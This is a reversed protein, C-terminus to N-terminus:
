SFSGSKLRPFFLGLEFGVQRPTAEPSAPDFGICLWNFGIFHWFLGLVLGVQRPTAEPSAPDFGIEFGAGRQAAM